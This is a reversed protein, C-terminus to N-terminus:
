GFKYHKKINRSIDWVCDMGRPFTVFDGAQIEVPEGDKPEVKVRGELIYCQERSDYHWDFRSVEKEWIPWGDIGMKKAEEPIMKEVLIKSM